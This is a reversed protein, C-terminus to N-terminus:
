VAATAVKTERRVWVADAWGVNVEVEVRTGVLVGVNMLTFTVSAVM